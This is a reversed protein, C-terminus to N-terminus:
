LHMMGRVMLAGIGWPMIAEMGRAQEITPLGEVKLEPNQLTNKAVEDRDELM